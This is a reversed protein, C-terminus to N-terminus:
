RGTAERYMAFTEAVIQNKSPPQMARRQQEELYRLSIGPAPVYPGFQAALAANAERLALGDPLNCLMAHALGAKINIFRGAADSHVTHVEGDAAILHSIADPISLCVVQDPNYKV